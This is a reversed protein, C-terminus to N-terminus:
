AGGPFASLPLPERGGIDPAEEQWRVSGFPRELMRRIRIPEPGAHMTRAAREILRDAQTPRARLRLYDLWTPCHFRETWLAPDAVDRAISWDYAGNRQRISQIQQMTQYFSRAQAPDVRYEMEIVIPGSRPTLALRVEPEVPLESEASSAADAAAPMKLWLGLAACGILAVGSGVLGAHVGYTRAVMGWVAAGIGGGGAATAQFAAMSRGAVWRPSSVQIEINFLSFTVTWFAGAVFLATLTLALLHSTAVLVVALGAGGGSLRLLTENRFRARLQSLSFAGFVAGVGFAGLLVGFTRADGHLLDRSVLPMLAAVAGGAVATALSRVLVVRTPPSHVIYRVGSIIARVMREPPLRTPQRPRKWLLLVVFAPIYLAANVVFAASPGAAAVIAGGVAPGFSRALNYNISSLAVASPLVDPPVQERVSSQWAPGMLSMGSGIVFCLALLLGPTLVGTLSSLALSSAGILSISVAILAVTRRDYMDAIAGAPMAFIMIPMMLATQVLAVKDASGSLQTMAWASGVSQIMLGLSSALSSAWARRFIPVRFAATIPPPAPEASSTM